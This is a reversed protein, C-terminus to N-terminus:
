SQNTLLCCVTSLSSIQWAPQGSMSIFHKCHSIVLELFKQDATLLPKKEEEVESESDDNVAKSKSHFGESPCEFAEHEVEEESLRKKELNQIMELVLGEEVVKKESIINRNNCKNTLMKEKMGYVFVKVFDLIQLTKHEQSVALHNLLSEMTDQLDYQEQDKASVKLVVRILTPM